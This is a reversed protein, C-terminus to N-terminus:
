RSRHQEWYRTIREDNARDDDSREDTVAPAIGDRPDRQKKVREAHKGSKDADEKNSM